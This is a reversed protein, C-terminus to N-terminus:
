KNLIYLSNTAHFTGRYGWYTHLRTILDEVGFGTKASVLAIHKINITAFGSERLNNKLTAKIRELFGKDDRPLLDMKNGVVFIPRKRGLLDAVGPWISCPYDLMDVVLIVLAKQRDRVTTLVKPYDEPAVRVQLALNYNRMFYCRQCIISKLGGEHHRSYNKFIESPIYGPIATDKCHLFAGCGGCPVDSVRSNADPTGYNVNVDIQELSKDNYSEYDAMWNHSHKLLESRSQIEIDAITAADQSIQSEPESEISDVRSDNNEYPFHVKEDFDSENAINETAADETLNLHYKLTIPIPEVSQVQLLKKNYENVYRNIRMSNGRLGLQVSRKEIYGNYLIDSEYKRVLEYIQREDVNQSVETGRKHKGLHLNNLHVNLYKLRSITSQNSLHKRLSFM